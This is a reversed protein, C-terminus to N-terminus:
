NRKRLYATGTATVKTTAMVVAIRYYLYQHCEGGNGNPSWIKTQATTVNTLTFTDNAYVAAQPVSGYAVTKWTPVNVFNTGDASGQLLCYGAVTSGTNAVKTIVCGFTLWGTGPATVTIYETASSDVSGTANTVTLTQAQTSLMTLVVMSFLLLFKKM